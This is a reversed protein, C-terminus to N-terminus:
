DIEDVSVRSEWMGVMKQELEDVTMAGNKIMSLDHGVLLMNFGDLFMVRAVTSLPLGFEQAYFEAIEKHTLNLV